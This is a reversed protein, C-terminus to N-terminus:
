QFVLTGNPRLEPAGYSPTTPAEAAITNAKLNINLGVFQKRELSYVGCYLDPWGTGSIIFVPAGKALPMRIASGIHIPAGGKTVGRNSSYFLSQSAWDPGFAKQM